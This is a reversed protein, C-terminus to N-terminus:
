GSSRARSRDLWSKPCFSGMTPWSSQRTSWVGGRLRGRESWALHLGAVTGPVGVALHSNHHQAANYEGNALFMAATAAAPAVERFDYAVPQGFVPRVLMFGGGGINGASPHTVALAFATAVAADVASGGERLVDLGVRAAHPEQAVVMGRRARIPQSSASLSAVLLAVASAAVCRFQRTRPMM